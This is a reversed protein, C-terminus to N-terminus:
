AAIGRRFPLHRARSRFGIGTYLDIAAAGGVAYVLCHRAGAGHLARLTAICASRALGLRRYDPHTGVPELEGLANAEDLWGLAFAAFRGGPAVVIHDFGSRYPWARMVNRYSAPVVRSPAFAARHVEVRRELDEEGRVPRVEFGEPLAPRAPPEDLDYVLHEYWRDEGRAYGRAELLATTETDASLAWATLPRGRQPRAEHEFWALVADTAEGVAEPHVQFDLEDPLWLWAWALVEGDGDRWLRIRAEWLKDLHQYM